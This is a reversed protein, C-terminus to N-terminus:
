FSAAPIVKEFVESKSVKYHESTFHRFHRTKWMVTIADRFRQTFVTKLTSSSTKILVKYWNLPLNIILVKNNARFGHKCLARTVSYCYRPFRTMETM